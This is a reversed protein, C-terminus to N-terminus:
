HNYSHLYVQIHIGFVNLVATLFLITLSLFIRRMRGPQSFRGSHEALRDGDRLLEVGWEKALIYFDVRGEGTGYEPFTM